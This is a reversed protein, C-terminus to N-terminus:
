ARSSRTPCWSPKRSAGAAKFWREALGRDQDDFEFEWRGNLTQWDSRAFDPRPHESRPVAPQAAVPRAVGALSVLLSLALVIRVRPMRADYSPRIATLPMSTARAGRARLICGM